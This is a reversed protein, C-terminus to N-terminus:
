AFDVPRLIRSLLDIAEGKTLGDGTFGLKQLFEIQRSTALETTGTISVSVGGSASTRTREEFTRIREPERVTWRRAKTSNDSASGGKKFLHLFGLILKFM